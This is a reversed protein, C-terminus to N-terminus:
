EVEHTQRGFLQNHVVQLPKGQLKEIDKLFDKEQSSCFSIALGNLGARGTRGIRHIYTEPVNPINM